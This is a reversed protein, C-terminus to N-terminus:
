RDGTFEGCLPGTVRFINGNSSTMMFHHWFLRKSFLSMRSRTVGNTSIVENQVINLLTRWPPGYGVSSESPRPLSKGCCGRRKHYSSVSYTITYDSHIQECSASARIFDVVAFIAM